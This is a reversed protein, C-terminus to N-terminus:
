VGATEASPPLPLLILFELKNQPLHSGLVFIFYFASEFRIWGVFLGNQLACVGSLGRACSVLNKGWGLGLVLMNQPMLLLPVLDCSQATVEMLRFLGGFRKPLEEQALTKVSISFLVEPRAVKLCLQLTKNTLSKLVPQPDPSLSSGLLVYSM